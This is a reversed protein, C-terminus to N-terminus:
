KEETTLDNKFISFREELVKSAQFGNKGGQKSHFILADIMNQESLKIKAVTKTKENRLKNASYYGTNEFYYYFYEMNEEIAKYVIGTKNIKKM